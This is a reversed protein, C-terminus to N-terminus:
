IRRYLRYFYRMNELQMPYELGEPLRYWQSDNSDVLEWNNNQTLVHNILFHVPFLKSGVQVQSYSGASEVFLLLAGKKCQVLSHLFKVTEARSEKFLENTTFMSTILDLKSLDVQEHKLKLVDEHIFEVQFATANELELGAMSQTLEATACNNGTINSSETPLADTMTSDGSWHARMVSGLREVVWGWDAIDISRVRMTGVGNLMSLAGLAVIEAGAGGGVCAVELKRTSYNNISNSNNNNNNNNGIDKHNLLHPIVLRRFLDAYAIARAPSWRVVYAELNEASGFATLYDRDFLAGKVAQIRSALTTSRTDFSHEFIDLLQQEHYEQRPTM